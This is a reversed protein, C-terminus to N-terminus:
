LWGATTANLMSVVALRKARRRQAMTKVAGDFEAPLKQSETLVDEASNDRAAQRVSKELEMIDM